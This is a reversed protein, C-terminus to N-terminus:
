KEQLMQELLQLQGLSAFFEAKIKEVYAKKEEIKQTLEKKQDDSLVM